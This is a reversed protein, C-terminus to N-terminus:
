LGLRLSVLQLPLEVLLVGLLLLLLVVRHALLLQVLLLLVLLHVLAHRVELLHVQLRVGLGELLVLCDGRALAVVVGVRVRLLVLLEVLLLLLLRLVLGLRGHLSVLSWSLGL